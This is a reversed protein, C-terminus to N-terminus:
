GLPAAAFSAIAPDVDCLSDHSQVSSVIRMMHISKASPAEPGERNLANERKKGGLQHVLRPQLHGSEAGSTVKKNVHCLTEGHREKIPWMKQALSGVDGAKDVYSSPLDM